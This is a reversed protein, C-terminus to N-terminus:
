LIAKGNGLGTIVSKEASWVCFAYFILAAYRGCSLKVDNQYLFCETLSLTFISQIAFHKLFFDNPLDSVTGSIMNIMLINSLKLKLMKEM